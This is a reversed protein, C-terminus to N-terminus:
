TQQERSAPLGEDIAHSVHRTYNMGHSRMDYDALAHDLIDFFRHWSMRAQRAGAYISIGHVIVNLLAALCAPRKPTAQSFQAAWPLYIRAHEIAAAYSLDGVPRASGPPARGAGSVYSPSGAMAGRTVSEYVWAITRAASVQAYEIRGDMWLSMIPDRRAPRAETEPTGGREERLPNILMAHDRMLKELQVAMALALDARERASQAAETSGRAEKLSADKALAIGQARYYELDREVTAASDPKANVIMTVLTTVRSRFLRYRDDHEVKIASMKLIPAVIANTMQTVSRKM